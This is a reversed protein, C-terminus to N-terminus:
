ERSSHTSLWTVEEFKPFYTIIGRYRYLISAYNCHFVINHLLHCWQWNALVRSHGRSLWKKQKFGKQKIGRSVHCSNALMARRATGRCYTCGRTTKLKALKWFEKVSPSLLLNTAFCFHFMRGDRLHTAVSRDSDQSINIDSFCCCGSFTYM